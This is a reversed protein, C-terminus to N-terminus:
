ILGKRERLSVIYDQEEAYRRGSESLIFRRGMFKSIRLNLYGRRYLSKLTRTLVADGFLLSENIQKRSMAKGGTQAIRRLVIIEFDNLPGTTLNDPFVEQHVDKVLSSFIKQPRDAADMLKRLQAMSKKIFPYIGILVFVTLFLIVQASLPIDSLPM